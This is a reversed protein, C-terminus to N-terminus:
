IASRKVMSNEHSVLNVVRQIITQLFSDVPLAPLIFSLGTMCNALLNEQDHLNFLKSLNDSTEV